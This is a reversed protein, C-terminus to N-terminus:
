DQAWNPTDATPRLVYEIAAHAMQQTLRATTSAGRVRQYHNGTEDTVKVILDCRKTLLAGVLLVWAAKNTERVPPRLRVSNRTELTILINNLDLSKTSFVKKSM